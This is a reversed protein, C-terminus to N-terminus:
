DRRTCSVSHAFGHATSRQAASSAAPAGCLGGEVVEGGTVIYLHLGQDADGSGHFVHDTEHGRTTIHLASTAGHPTGGPRPVENACRATAQKRLRLAPFDDLKSPIRGAVVIGCHVHM